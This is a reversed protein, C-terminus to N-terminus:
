QFLFYEPCITQLIQKYSKGPAAKKKIQEFLVLVKDGVFLKERLKKRKTSYKMVDYRDLRRHLRQTKEIRHM